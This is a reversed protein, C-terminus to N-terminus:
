ASLEAVEEPSDPTADASRSRGLLGYTAGVLLGGGVLNGLGSFLLNNAFAGVTAGPTSSFLGLGYVTMNAVVHEFGSVIFALLVWFLVALKAGDSRTRAAMWVGLCVLFNCLIGRFFLTSASEASKSKVLSALLGSGAPAHGPNAIALVGSAHILWAFVLAGVLNGVFSVVVVSAAGGAGVGRARALLGQVMTMMNGTSLEGGAFVVLTLAVGFVVGQILKTWPSDAANLPGASMIMLVIAVGVYAGALGASVLFRAPWRLDAVKSRAVSAQESLAQTIPIPM